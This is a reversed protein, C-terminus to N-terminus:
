KKAKYNQPDKLCQVLAFYTRKTSQQPDNLLQQRLEEALKLPTNGHIDQVTLDLHYTLYLTQILKPQNSLAAYHAVTRGQEDLPININLNKNNKKHKAFIKRMPAISKKQSAYSQSFCNALQKELQKPYRGKSTLGPTSFTLANAPNLTILNELACKEKKPDIDLLVVQKGLTVLTSALDSDSQRCPYNNEMSHTQYFCLLLPFLIRYNM